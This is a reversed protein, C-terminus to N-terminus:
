AYSIEALYNKKLTAYRWLVIDVVSKKDGTHDSIKECFVNTCKYGFHNSIRVLHRDPKAINVGLNKALHLATAPGLYKFKMLFAVGQVQILNTIVFISKNVLYKAMGLIARIKGENNFLTIARKYIKRENKFILLPNKWNNFILSLKPFIRAIVRESMGSSLVVWAYERYFDSKTIVELSRTEQFYVEEFYGSEFVHHKAKFYYILLADVNMIM